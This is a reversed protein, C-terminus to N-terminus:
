ASPAVASTGITFYFSAGRGPASEAWIRGGHRHVIRQVISLGIGHGEFKAANHFRQFADFLREAHQADFGPGNDRVFYVREDGHMESGLEIAAKPTDRTFKVANSLLNVFVQKLLSADAHVAPLEGLALTLERQPQEKRLDDVVGAVLAAVDTSRVDLTQRGVYSLRMLADILSSMSRASREVHGLWERHEPGLQPGLSNLLLASFGLVANLPARLDHSASRTFADLERNTAELEAVHERVRQELAANAMRLRRITLSRGVVPLIASLTFPKLVYDLAGSQMAEVATGISGEGTMIIGSLMPDIAQAARLLAIGNMGPMKLDSLMLDFRAQRLAALAQDGSGCGHVQYGQDELTDCLARLQAQEDDVVLLRAKIEEDNM